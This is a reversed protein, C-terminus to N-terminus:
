WHKARRAKTVAEDTLYSVLLRRSYPNYNFFISTKGFQWYYSDENQKNPAGYALKLTEFLLRSNDRGSSNVVVGVLRDSFFAYEIKEVGANGIYMEDNMKVYYRIGDSEGAFKMYRFSRLSDGWRLGKFGDIENSAASGKFFFCLMLVIAFKLFFNRM